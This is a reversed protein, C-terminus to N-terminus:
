IEYKKVGRKLDYRCKQIAAISRGIKHSLERDTTEHKEVLEMEQITWQQHENFYNFERRYYHKNGRQRYRRAKDKDKFHKICKPM